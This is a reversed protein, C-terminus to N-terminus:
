KRGDTTSGDMTSRMLDILEQIHEAKKIKTGLPQSMEASTPGSTSPTASGGSTVGNVALSWLFDTQAKTKNHCNMCGSNIKTQDFTEMTANAFASKDNGNNGPFTNAATGDQSPPVSPLSPPNPVPWQTMVLQYNKWVTNALAAQYRANTGTTPVIGGAAASFIPTLRQVNYPTPPPFKPPWLNDTPFNRPMPVGTGNNLAMGHGTTPAVNDVHEFTSWIWQPRSSTKQVIHLGILGILKQSCTKDTPDLLWAMRTYYRAPDVVNTMDMWAAKVDISGNPLTVNTQNAVLYLKDAVIKTYETENFGTWYRVYTNNQAVLTGVLPQGPPFGAEGLNGFKSFSFTGLIMDTLGVQPLNCPNNQAVASWPGPDTPRDPFLEWEAKYTEFVLPRSTDGLKLTTDPQGRHNLDAPWVLSIFARWSYDDFYQIPLINFNAICVDAPTQPSITPQPDPACAGAAQAGDFALGGPTCNLSTGLTLIATSLLTMRIRRNWPARRTM